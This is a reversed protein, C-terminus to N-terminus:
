PSLMNLMGAFATNLVGRHTGKLRESASAFDPDGECASGTLLEIADTHNRTFRSMKTDFVFGNDVKSVTMTDGNKNSFVLQKLKM